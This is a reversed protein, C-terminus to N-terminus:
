VGFIVKFAMINNILSRQHYILWLGVNKKLKKNEILLEVLGLIVYKLRFNIMLLFIIWNLMEIYYIIKKYINWEKFLIM